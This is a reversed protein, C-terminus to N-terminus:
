QDSWTGQDWGKVFGTDTDWGFLPRDMITFTTLVGAPKPIIYGNFLLAIMTPTASPNIMIVQLTMDQNDLIEYTADTFTADILEILQENTGNWFNARIRAKIVERFYEDPLSAPIDPDVVPLERTLDVYSGLKDLQDGVANDLNFIESFKNMCQDIPLDQDLFAQVYANFLPQEAYESTILEMYSAIDTPNVPM